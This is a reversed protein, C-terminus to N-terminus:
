KNKQKYKKKIFVALFIFFFAGFILTILAIPIKLIGIGAKKIKNKVIETM